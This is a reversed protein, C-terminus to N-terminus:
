NVTGTGTNTGTGTSTNTGTGTSSSTQTGSTGWRNIIDTLTALQSATLGLQSLATTNPTTSTTGTPLGSLLSGAFQVQKYPAEREAEFAAKQATIGEQEIARQASGLGALANIEGIRRQQEANYQNLAKDYATQYAEGTTRAQLAALNRANETRALAERSGGFAGARTFQGQLNQQTIDAQRRQEALQPALSMQIYPNMYQNIANADFGQGLGGALDFAKQQLGSIGATLPGQYAQYPEKSLALGRSLYDSVYDGVWPALSTETTTGYPANGSVGTGTNVLGGSPFAVAGGSAFKAIGGPTFKEPNIQKGQKTTGTRAKRVRDMMKYLQNAGAESNGNGLHSVVDAPIVFEGHSLKAPQKDDISSPIKDAMGDTPGSLYRGKALEAIGGTAKEVPKAVLQNFQNMTYGEPVPLPKPQVPPAAPAMQAAPAAKALRALGQAEATDATEAATKDASSLVYKPTTFARSGMVAQGSYPKYEPQAVQQRIATLKPITGKWGGTKPAQSTSLAYATGLLGAIGQPTSLKEVAGKALGILRASDSRSSPDYAVQGDQNYYKGDPGIATGNSFYRWGYGTQGPLAPNTIETVYDSQATDSTQSTDAGGGSQPGGVDPDSSDASIGDDYEYWYGSDDDGYGEIWQRQIAM